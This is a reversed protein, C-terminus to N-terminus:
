RDITCPMSLPSPMACPSMPLRTLSATIAVCLAGGANGLLQDDGALLSSPPVAEAADNSCLVRPCVRALVVIAAFAALLRAASSPLPKV